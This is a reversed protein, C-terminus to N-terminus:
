REMPVAKAYKDGQVTVILRGQWRNHYVEKLLLLFQGAAPAVFTLTSPAVRSFWVRKYGNGPGGGDFGPQVIFELPLEVGDDGADSYDVNVTIQRGVLPPDSIPDLTLGFRDEGIYVPSLKDIIANPM